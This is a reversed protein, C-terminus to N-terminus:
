RRRSRALALAFLACLWDSTSDSACGCGPASSMSGGGGSASTGGGASASGGGTSATGGGTATGGATGGASGGGAGSGGGSSSGGGAGTGGGGAGTASGGGNSNGGGAGNGGGGAGGGSGGDLSPRTAVGFLPVLQPSSVGPTDDTIQLTDTQPGMSSPSFMVTIACASGSALTSGCTKSAISFQTGTVLAISAISLSATNTSSFTILQGQSSTGVGQEGFNIAAPSPMGCHTNGAFDTASNYNPLSPPIVFYQGNMASTPKWSDDLDTWTTGTRFDIQNCAWVSNTGLTFIPGYLPGGPEVDTGFTNGYFTSSTLQSMSGSLGLSVTAGDGSWFNNNM